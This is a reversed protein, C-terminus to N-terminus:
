DCTAHRITLLASVEDDVDGASVVCFRLRDAHCARTVAERVVGRGSAEGTSRPEGRSGADAEAADALDLLLRLGPGTRGLCEAVCRWGRGGSGSRCAVDMAALLRGHFPGASRGERAEEAAATLAAAAVHFPDNDAPADPANADAAAATTAVRDCADILAQSPSFRSIAHAIRPTAALLLCPACGQRSTQGAGRQFPLAQLRRERGEATM